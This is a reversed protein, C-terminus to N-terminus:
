VIGAMSSMRTLVWLLESCPRASRPRIRSRHLADGKRRLMRPKKSRHLQAQCVCPTVIIDGTRQSCLQLLSQEDWPRVGWGDNTLM